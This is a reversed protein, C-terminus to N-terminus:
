LSRREGVQVSTFVRHVGFAPRDHRIHRYERKLRLYQCSSRGLRVHVTTAVIPHERVGERQRVPRVARVDFM